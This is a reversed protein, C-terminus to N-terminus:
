NKRQDAVRDARYEDDKTEGGPEGRQQDDDVQGHRESQDMPKAHKTWMVSLEREQIEARSENEYNGTAPSETDVMQQPSETDRSKDIKGGFEECGEVGDSEM